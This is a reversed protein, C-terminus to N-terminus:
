KYVTKCDPGITGTLSKMSAIQAATIQANCLNGYVISAGTMNAGTFDAFNEYCYSIKANMLNANIFRARVLSGIMTTTNIMANSLNAESFDVDDAAGVNSFTTGILTAGSFRAGSIDLALINSNTITANLFSTNRFSKGSLTVNNYVVNSFNSNSFDIKSDLTGGINTNGTTATSNSFDSHELNTMDQSSGLSLKNFISSNDLVAGSLDTRSYDGGYIFVKSNSMDWGFLDCHPCRPPNTTEFQNVDQPDYRLTNAHANLFLVSFPVIFLIKNKISKIKQM